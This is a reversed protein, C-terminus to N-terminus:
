LRVLGDSTLDWHPNHVIEWPYGDPDAFYGSYGGWFVQRAKKLLKGGAAVARALASDVEAPSGVNQSITVGGFGAIGPALTADEALLNRPYLALIVAGPSFFVINEDSGKAHRWGLGDEYFRRARTLDAVGLTIVNLRCDM